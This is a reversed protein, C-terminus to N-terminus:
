RRSMLSRADTVPDYGEGDASALLRGSKRGKLPLDSRRIRPAGPSGANTLKGQRLLRGLHDATFGSEAAAEGLTLEGSDVTTLVAAVERAHLECATATADHGYRRLLAAEARWHALLEEFPSAITSIRMVTM